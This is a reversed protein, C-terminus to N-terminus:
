NPQRHGSETPGERGLGPHDPLDLVHHRRRDPDAGTPFVHQRYRNVRPCLFSPDIEISCEQGTRIIVDGLASREETFIPLAMGKDARAARVAHHHHVPHLLGGIRHCGTPPGDGAQYKTRISRLSVHRILRSLLALVVHDDITLLQTTVLTDFVSQGPDPIEIELSAIEGVAGFDAVLHHGASPMDVTVLYM